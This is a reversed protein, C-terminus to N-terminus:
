GIINAGRVIVDSTLNNLTKLEAVSLGNANAIKWLTDGSAVTISTTGPTVTPTSPKNPTDTGASKL